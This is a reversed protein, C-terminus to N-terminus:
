APLVKIQVDGGCDGSHAIAAEVGVRAVVEPEFHQATKVHQYMAGEAPGRACGVARYGGQSYELLASEKDLYLYWIGKETIMLGDVEASGAVMGFKYESSLAKHASVAQRLLFDEQELYERTIKKNFIRHFTRSSTDGGCYGFYGAHHDLAYIKTGKVNQSIYGNEHAVLSDSAIAARRSKEDYAACVISM